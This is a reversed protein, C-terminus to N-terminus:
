WFSGHLSQSTLWSRILSAWHLIKNSMPKSIKTSNLINQLSVDIETAQKYCIALEYWSTSVISHWSPYSLQYLRPITCWHSPNPGLQTCSAKQIGRRLVATERTKPCLKGGCQFKSHLNLLASLDLPTEQKYVCVVIHFSCQGLTEQNKIAILRGIPRINLTM